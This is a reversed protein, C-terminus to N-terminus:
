EKWKNLMTKTRSIVDSPPPRIGKQFREEFAQKVVPHARFDDLNLAQLERNERRDRFEFLFKIGESVKKAKEKSLTDKAGHIGAKEPLTGTDIAAQLDDALQLWSEKTHLTRSKEEETPPKVVAKSKGASPGGAGSM